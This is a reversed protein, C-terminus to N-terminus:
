LEIKGLFVNSIFKKTEECSTIINNSSSLQCALATSLACGTGRIKRNVKKTSLVKYIKGDFIYDTSKQNSHGGKLYLCKQYHEFFTMCIFHPPDNPSCKLGMACAEIFNPTVIDVLPMLETLALKIGQRSLLEGGSTSRFVPDWVIMLPALNKKIKRITKIVWKVQQENGLMGIKIAGIQETKLCRVLSQYYTQSPFYTSFYKKDSQATLATPIAFFDKKFYHCVKIDMLVGAHGTPDYGSLLLIKKQQKM